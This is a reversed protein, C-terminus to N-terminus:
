VLGQVGSSRSIGMIAVASPSGLAYAGLVQLGTVLVTMSLEARRATTVEGGGLKAQFGRKSWACASIGQAGGRQCSV